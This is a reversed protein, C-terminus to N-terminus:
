FGGVLFRSPELGEERVLDWSGEPGATLPRKTGVPSREGAGRSPEGRREEDRGGGETPDNRHVVGKGGAESVGASRQERKGGPAGGGHERDRQAHRDGAGRAEAEEHPVKKKCPNWNNGGQCQWEGGAGARPEKPAGARPGHEEHPEGEQGVGGVQHGVAHMQAAMVVSKPSKEVRADEAGAAEEPDREAGKGEPAGDAGEPEGRVAAAAARDAGEADGEGAVANVQPPREAEVAPVGEGVRADEGEPGVEVAAEDGPAEERREQEGDGKPM